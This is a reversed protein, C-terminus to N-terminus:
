EYINTKNDLTHNLLPYKDDRCLTAVLSRLFIFLYRVYTLESDSMSFRKQNKVGLYPRYSMFAVYDPISRLYKM